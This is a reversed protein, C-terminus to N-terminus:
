QCQPRNVYGNADAGMSSLCSGHRGWKCPKRTGLGVGCANTDRTAPNRKPGTNDYNVIGYGDDRAELTEQNKEVNGVRDIKLDM